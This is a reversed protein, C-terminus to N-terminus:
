SSLGRFFVNNPTLFFSEDVSPDHISCIICQGHVSSTDRALNQREQVRGNRQRLMDVLHGGM